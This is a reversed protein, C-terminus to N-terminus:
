QEAAVLEQAAKSGGITLFLDAFGAPFRSQGAPEAGRSYKTLLIADHLVRANITSEGNIQAPLLALLGRVEDILGQNAGLRSLLDSVAPDNGLGHLYSAIQVVAQNAEETKALAAAQRAVKTAAGIKQFDNHCLKKMEIAVREILLEQKQALMAPPLSGLCQEAYPCYSACGFDIRPNLVEHGCSKCKRKSDDKFFEVSTGCKACHSEFIAEGDWYRSDQGPCQM